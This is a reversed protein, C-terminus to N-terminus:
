TTPELRKILYLIMITMFLIGIFLGLVLAFAIGGGFVPLQAVASLITLMVPGVVAIMIYGISILNLVETFDRIKMRSEFSVDDAITTIIEALNGGTRLARIIQVLAKKLGKSKTRISLKLVAEETSMGGEMDVLVRKFEDSLVGYNSQAISNLSNSFSVGAKLQTSLQRLAFPLEKDIDKAREGAKMGPYYIMLFSTLIFGFVAVIISLTVSYGVGVVSLVPSLFISLSGILVLLLFAVIISVVSSLAMYGEPSININASDLNNKLSNTIPFVNMLNQILSLPKEFASYFNGLTNSSKQVSVQVERKVEETPTVVVGKGEVTTKLSELKKSVNTEKSVNKQRLRNIIKELEEQRRRKSEADEEKEVNEKLNTLKKEVM